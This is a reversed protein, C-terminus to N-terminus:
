PGSSSILSSSVHISDDERGVHFYVCVKILIRMEEPVVKDDVDLIEEGVPVDKEATGNPIDSLVRADGRGLKRRKKAKGLLKKRRVYGADTRISKRWKAWWAVAEEDLKGKELTDEVVIDESDGDYNASHAKFDSLQEQISKTIVAHYAPALGYDDVISQAFSEPTVVPDICCAYHVKLVSISNHIARGNLNWVFSDRMKHHEVDFELRIPVLQEPRDADEPKLKRPRHFGCDVDRPLFGCSVISV